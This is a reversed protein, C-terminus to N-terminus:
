LTGQGSCRRGIKKTVGVGVADRGLPGQSVDDKMSVPRRLWYVELHSWGQLLIVPEQGDDGNGEAAATETVTGVINGVPIATDERGYKAHENMKLKAVETAARVREMGWTPTKDIIQSNTPATAKPDRTVPVILFLMMSKFRKVLVGATRMSTMVQASIPEAEHSRKAVLSPKGTEVVWVITPARMPAPIADLALTEQLQFFPDTDWTAADQAIAGRIEAAILAMRKAVRLNPTRSRASGSLFAM